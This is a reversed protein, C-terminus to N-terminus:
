AVANAAAKSPLSSSTRLISTTRTQRSARAPMGQDVLYDTGALRGSNYLWNLHNLVRQQEPRLDSGGLGSWASASAQHFHNPQNLLYVAKDGLLAVINDIM